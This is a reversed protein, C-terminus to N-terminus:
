SASTCVSPPKRIRGPKREFPVVEWVLFGVGQAMPNFCFLLFFFCKSALEGVNEM